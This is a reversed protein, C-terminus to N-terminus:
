GVVDELITEAIEDLLPGMKVATPDRRPMHKTGKVHYKAYPAPSYALITEQNIDIGFDALGAIGTRQLLMGGIRKPNRKLTSPAFGKWKGQEGTAGQSNILDDMHTRLIEAIVSMDLNKERIKYGNLRSELNSMDFEVGFFEEAM